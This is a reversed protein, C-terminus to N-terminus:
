TYDKRSYDAPEQQFTQQHRLDFGTRAAEFQHPELFALEFVQILVGDPGLARMTLFENSDFQHRQTRVRRAGFHAVSVSSFIDQRKTRPGAVGQPTGVVPFSGTEAPEPHAPAIARRLRRPEQPRAALWKSCRIPGSVSPLFVKGTRVGILMMITLGRRRNAPAFSKASLLGSM